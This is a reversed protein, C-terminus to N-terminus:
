FNTQPEKNITMQKNNKIKHKLTSSDHSSTTLGVHHHTAQRSLPTISIYVRGSKLNTKRTFFKLMAGLTSTSLPEVDATLYPSM